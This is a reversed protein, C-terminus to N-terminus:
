SVHPVQGCVYLITLMATGIVHITSCLIKSNFLKQELDDTFIEALFPSGMALGNDQKYFMGNHLIYNQDICAGLLLKIENVIPMDLGSDKVLNATSSCAEKVPVSAFLNCVDFSVIKANHPIKV